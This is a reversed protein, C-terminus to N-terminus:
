SMTGGEEGKEDGGGDCGRMDLRWARCGSSARPARQAQGAAVRGSEEGACAYRLRQKTCAWAIPADRATCSIMPSVDHMRGANTTLKTGPLPSSNWAYLEAAGPACCVEARKRPPTVGSARNGRQSAGNLTFEHRQIPSGAAWHEAWRCQCHCHCHEVRLPHRQVRLGKWTSRAAKWDRHWHCALGMRRPLQRVRVQRPRWRPVSAPRASHPPAAPATM